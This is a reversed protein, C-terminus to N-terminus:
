FTVGVGVTFPFAAPAVSRNFMATLSKHAYVVIGNYSAQFDIGFGFARMNLDASEAHRRDSKKKKWFSNEDGHMDMSCGLAVGFRDKWLPFLRHAMLRMRGGFYNLHGYRDDAKDKVVANMNEDNGLNYGKKFMIRGMMVSVDWTVGIGDGGDTQEISMVPIGFEVTGVGRVHLDGSNAFGLSSGSVTGLGVFCVPTLPEYRTKQQNLLPSRFFFTKEETFDSYRAEYIKDYENGKMDLVKVSTEWDNGSIVVKRKGYNVTTDSKEEAMAALPLLVAVIFTFAKMNKCNYIISKM